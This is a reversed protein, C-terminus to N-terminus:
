RDEGARGASRDSHTGALVSNDDEPIREVHADEGSLELRYDADPFCARIELTGGMAEVVSRLTSVRVDARSEMKSVSVQRIALREAMAEQTLGRAKRLEGLRLSALIRETKAAARAISEPPLGAKIEAWKKRPM